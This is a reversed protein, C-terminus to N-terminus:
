TPPVLHASLSIYVRRMCAHKKESETSELTLLHDRRARQPSRKHVGRFYVLTQANATRLSALNSIIAAHATGRLKPPRQSRKGYLRRARNACGRAHAIKDQDDDGREVSSHSYIRM